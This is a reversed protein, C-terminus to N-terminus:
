GRRPAAQRRGSRGPASAIPGASGARSSSSRRRAPHRRESEPARRAAERHAVAGVARPAELADPELRCDHRNARFALSAFKGIGFQGIRDRGFRPSLSRIVKEDSGICFYQRLGDADMGAGDDAVSIRDPAIDVRVETADADYANNILERLLEVSEAYLREGISIIHRKDVTVDLHAKGIVDM